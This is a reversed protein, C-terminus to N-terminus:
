SLQLLISYRLHVQLLIPRILTLLDVIARSSEERHIENAKPNQGKMIPDAFQHVFSSKSGLVRGKTVWDVLAWFELLSNQIPTGTLILRHKSNIQHVAKSMKTQPNKIIHGEDLCVYDWVRESRDDFCFEDVMNSFLQYSSLVVVPNRSMFINNLTRIRSNKTMDASIIQITSNKVHPILHDVLERNWSETVSVPSLILVRQTTSSRLLGTLLCVLQFTKGLGM